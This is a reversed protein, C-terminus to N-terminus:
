NRRWSGCGSGCSGRSKSGSRSWGPNGTVRVPVAQYVANIVRNPDGIVVLRGSLAVRSGVEVAVIIDVALVVGDPQEIVLGLSHFVGAEFM